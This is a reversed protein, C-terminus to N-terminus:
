SVAAEGVRSSRRSIVRHRNRRGASGKRMAEIERQQHLLLYEPQFSFFNSRHRGGSSSKKRATDSIVGRQQLIITCRQGNGMFSEASAEASSTRRSFPEESVSIVPSFPISCAPGPSTVNTELGFYAAAARVVLAEATMTLSSKGAIGTAM